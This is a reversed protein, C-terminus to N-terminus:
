RAAPKGARQMGRLRLYTDNSPPRGLFDVVLEDASRSGGPELIARRYEAGVSPSIIGEAAFRGFMDDGIV